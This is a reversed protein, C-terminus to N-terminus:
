AELLLRRRDVARIMEELRPDAALREYLATAVRRYDAEVLGGSVLRYRLYVFATQVVDSLCYNRIKEIQGARFLGEVQSGDVGVKGPLGVLRAVSDLKLHRAAGHESLVDCLDIHGEASYRYRYGKGQYYWRLPVGHRLARLAIVPLDFGRGNWTVITPRNQEVFQSFDALMAGEEEDHAVVGLRKFALEGDLWLLGIVIPRHAYHPAMPREEGVPAEPPVYVEADPITEIDLVLISGERM